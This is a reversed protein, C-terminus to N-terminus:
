SRGNRTHLSKGALRDTNIFVATITLGPQGNGPLCVTQGCFQRDRLFMEKGIKQVERGLVGAVPM